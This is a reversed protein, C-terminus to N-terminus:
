VVGDRTVIMVSVVVVKLELGGVVLEIYCELNYRHAIGFTGLSPTLM